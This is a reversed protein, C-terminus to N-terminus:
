RLSSCHNALCQIITMCLTDLCLISEAIRVAHHLAGWLVLTHMLELYVNWHHGLVYIVGCLVVVLKRKRFV